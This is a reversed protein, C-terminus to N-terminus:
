KTLADKYLPLIEIFRKITKEMTETSKGGAANLHGGGEFYKSAIEKVSFNDRSRFSIKILGDRESFFASLRIGKIGLGYNVIGESDGPQHNFQNIEKKTVAIYATNYKELVTLKEKLCHGLFRTRMESFNDYILEHVKDHRAGAKLLESIVLHTDSTMSPFRFSGTDTMIGTYLCDAIAPTISSKDGSQVIFYYVLECTACADPFSFTYDCFHRPALHHDILIKKAASEVLAEQLRDVREPANFDLCFIIDAEILKETAEAPRKDYDIVADNGNMWSLFDPYESPTVVSVRHRKQLLYNYMALSAGMADGDPKHHPLIAIKRPSELFASIERLQTSDFQPIM